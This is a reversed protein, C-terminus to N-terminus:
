EILRNCDSVYLIKFPGYLYNLNSCRIFYAQVTKSCDIYKINHCNILCLNAVKCSKSFLEPETFICGDLFLLELKDNFANEFGTLEIVPSKWYSHSNVLKTYYCIFMDILNPAYKYHINIGLINLFNITVISESNIVYDCPEVIEVNNISINTLNDNNLLLENIKCNSLTLRKANPFESLDLKLVNRYNSIEIHEINKDINIPIEIPLKIISSITCNGM